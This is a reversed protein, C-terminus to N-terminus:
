WGSLSKPLLAPERAAVGPLGQAIAEVPRLERASAQASCHKCVPFNRQYPVQEELKCLIFRHVPDASPTTSGQVLVIGLFAGINRVPDASSTPLQEKAGGGCFTCIRNTSWLRRREVLHCGALCIGFCLCRSAHNQKGAINQMCTADAEWPSCYSSRVSRHSVILAKYM